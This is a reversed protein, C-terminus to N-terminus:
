VISAIWWAFAAPTGITTAILLISTASMAERAKRQRYSSVERAKAESEVVTLEDGASPVGQLGVVEVPQAPAAQKLRQGKDDLLSRVRGWEQGVVFIDGVHLTGKSVLVTAVPGRGKEMKAEVVTGEANRNPNAKLDLIEAQLLIAEVLKDINIRKKASLLTAM